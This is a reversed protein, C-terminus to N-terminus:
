EILTKMRIELTFMLALYTLFNFVMWWFATYIARVGHNNECKKDDNM